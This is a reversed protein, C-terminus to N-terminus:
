LGGHWLYPVDARLGGLKVEASLLFLQKLRHYRICDMVENQSRLKQYNRVANPHLLQCTKMECRDQTGFYALAIMSM